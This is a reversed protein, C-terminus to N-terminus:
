GFRCQGGRGRAYACFRCKENPRPLFSADNFMPQVKRDWKAKLPDLDKRDYEATEEQGTDHYWLRTTVHHVPKYQSMFSITFLEMEDEHTGYKKGTKHDIVEASMDDYLVALDLVSRFWTDRAFWGTPKWSSTFGWQQEVIKDPFARAEALLKAFREGEKPLEGEGLIYRKLDKHVRDGRDMAPTKPEEVKEIFKLRFYLPCREWAAFRSYSWATIATGSKLAAATM